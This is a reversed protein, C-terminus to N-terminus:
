GRSGLRAKRATNLARNRSMIESKSMKKPPQNKIECVRVLTILRSLHWKQCEMPINLAIMWYYILESTVIEKKRMKSESGKFADETFTTATMPDEIYSMVEKINSDTLGYYVNSDVNQTITMCRIYDVTEEFTLNKDSLFPKHWKSEWKSLSVLSHELQLVTPKITIFEQKEEDFYESEPIVLKLM